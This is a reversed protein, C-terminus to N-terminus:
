VKLNVERTKVDMYKGDETNRKTMLDTKSNEGQSRHKVAGKRSGDGTPKNSAMIKNKSSEFFTGDINLTAAICVNHMNPLPM